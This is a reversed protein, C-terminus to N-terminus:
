RIFVPGLYFFQLAFEITFSILIVIDLWELANLSEPNFRVVDLTLVGLLISNGIIICTMIAQVLLGNVFKGASNRLSGLYMNQSQTAEGLKFNSYPIELEADEYTDQTSVIRKSVARSVYRFSNSGRTSDRISRRSGHLSAREADMSLVRSSM